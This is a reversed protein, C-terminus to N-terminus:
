KRGREDGQQEFELLGPASSEGGGRMGMVADAADAVINFGVEARIEMQLLEALEGAEPGVAEALDKAAGEADAGVAVNELASDFAGLRKKAM